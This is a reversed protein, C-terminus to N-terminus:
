VWVLIMFVEVGSNANIKGEHDASCVFDKFVSMSRTCCLEWGSFFSTQGLLGRADSLLFEARLQEGTLFSSLIDVRYSIRTKICDIM